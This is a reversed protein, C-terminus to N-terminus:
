CVLMESHRQGCIRTLTAQPARARLSIDPSYLAIDLMRDICVTLFFEITLTVSSSSRRVVM